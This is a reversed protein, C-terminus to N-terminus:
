HQGITKVNATDVHGHQTLTPTWSEYAENNQYLFVSVIDSDETRTWAFKTM